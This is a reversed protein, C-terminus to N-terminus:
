PRTTTAKVCEWNEKEIKNNFKRKSFIVNKTKSVNVTLKWEFCYQEFVSVKTVRRDVGCFYNDDAYLLIFLKTYLVINETFKDNIFKLGDVSNEDLYEELDNLYLAFLFPSIKEGQRVGVDCLFFDTKLEENKVCSKNDPYMSLIVKFM